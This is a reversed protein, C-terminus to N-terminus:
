PLTWIDLRGVVLIDRGYGILVWLNYGPIAAANMYERSDWVFGKSQTGDCKTAVAPLLSPPDPPYSHSSVADGRRALEDLERIGGDVNCLFKEPVIRSLTYASSPVLNANNSLV